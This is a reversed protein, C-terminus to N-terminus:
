DAIHGALVSTGLKLSLETFMSPWMCDLAPAVTRWAAVRCHMAVLWVNRCNQQLLRSEWEHRTKQCYVILLGVHAM